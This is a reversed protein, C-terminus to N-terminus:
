LSWEPMWGVEGLEMELEFRLGGPGQSSRPMGLDRAMEEIIVRGERTHAPRMGLTGRTEEWLFYLRAPDTDPSITWRVSLRGTPTSLSGSKKAHGALEHLLIAFSLAAEHRLQIDAGEIDVQPDFAALEGELLNRLPAGRQPNKAALAHAHGLFHLKAVFAERREVLSPEPLSATALFEITRLLHAIRDDFEAVVQRQEDEVSKRVSIDSVTVLTLGSYSGSMPNLAVEVPIERGDSHLGFFDRGVGMPRTRPFLNFAQRHSIHGARFRRPLLSEVSKGVLDARSHGFMSALRNNFAVIKGEGDVIVVGHPLSEFLSFRDFDPIRCESM